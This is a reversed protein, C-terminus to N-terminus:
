ILAYPPSNWWCQVHPGVSSADRLVKPGILVKSNKIKFFTPTSGVKSIDCFSYQSTLTFTFPVVFFNNKLDLNM